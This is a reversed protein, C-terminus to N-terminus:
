RAREIWLTDVVRHDIRGLDHLAGTVGACSEEGFDHLALWGSPPLLKRAWFIDHRVAEESHDGDIFVLGFKAGTRRLDPLVPQSRAALITVKDECGYRVLNARMEALSDHGTHPDIAFVHSAGALAMAIASYGYASGIELVVRGMALKRLEAVEKATLSTQIEPGEGTLRVGRWPLVM